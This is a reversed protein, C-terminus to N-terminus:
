GRKPDEWLQASINTEPDTARKPTKYGLPFDFDLTEFALSNGGRVVDKLAQINPLAYKKYHSNAPKGNPWEEHQIKLFAEKGFLITLLTPNAFHFNIPKSSTDDFHICAELPLYGKQTEPNFSNTGRILKPYIDKFVGEPCCKELPLLGKGEKLQKKQTEVLFTLLDKAWSPNKLEQIFSTKGYVAELYAVTKKFLWKNNKNPSLLVFLNVSGHPSGMRTFRFYPKVEENDSDNKIQEREQKNTSRERYLEYVEEQGGNYAKRLARMRGLYSLGETKDTFQSSLFSVSIAGFILLFTIVLPLFNM